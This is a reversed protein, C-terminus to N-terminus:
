ARWPRATSLSVDSPVGQPSPWCPWHIKLTNQSFMGPLDFSSTRAEVTSDERLTAPLGPVRHMEWAGAQIQHASTFLIRQRGPYVGQSPNAHPPGHWATLTRDATRILAPLPGPTATIYLVTPPIAHTAFQTHRWGDLLFHDYRRLRDIQKHPRRTRDYEILVAFCQGDVEGTLTADPELYGPLSEEPHLQTGQPLRAVDSLEEPPSLHRPDIRGSRAGQWLFPMRDILPGTGSAATNAIHLILAALQLDHEAYSISYLEVPRYTRGDEFIGHALLTQWGKRTLRYNWECSGSLAPPRFKDLYGSDHLRLLRRSAADSERGWGLLTLQSASLFGAEYLAAMLRLDRSTLAIRQPTVPRRGWMITQEVLAWGGRASRQAISVASM